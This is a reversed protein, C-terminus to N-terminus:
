FNIKGIFKSIINYIINYLNTTASFVHRKNLIYFFPNGISYFLQNSYCDSCQLWSLVATTDILIIIIIVWCNKILSINSYLKKSVSYIMLYICTVYILNFSFFVLSVYVYYTFTYMHHERRKDIEFIHVKTWGPRLKLQQRYLYIEM